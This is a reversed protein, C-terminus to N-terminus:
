MPGEMLCLGCLNVCHCQSTLQQLLERPLTPAECPKDPACVLSKQGSGSVAGCLILPFPKLADQCRGM